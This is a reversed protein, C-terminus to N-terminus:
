YKLGFLSKKGRRTKRSKGGRRRRRGGAPSAVQDEVTEVADVVKETAGGMKKLKLKLAKLAKKTSHRRRRGGALPAADVNAPSLGANANM